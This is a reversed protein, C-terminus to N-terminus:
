SAVDQCGSARRPESNTAQQAGREGDLAAVNVVPVFPFRFVNERGDLFPFGGRFTNARSQVTQGSEFSREGALFGGIGGLAQDGEVSSLSRVLM